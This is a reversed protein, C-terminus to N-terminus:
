QETRSSKKMAEVARASLGRDLKVEDPTVALDYVLVREPKPLREGAYKSVETVSTCGVLFLAAVFGLLINLIRM